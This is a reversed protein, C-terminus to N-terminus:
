KSNFHNSLISISDLARMKPRVQQNWLLCESSLQDKFEFARQLLSTLEEINNSHSILTPNIGLETSKNNSGQILIAPVGAWAAEVIALGFGERISPHLLVVSKRLIEKKIEESGDGYITVYKSMNNETVFSSVERLLPGSGLLHFKGEWGSDRFAKIAQLSLIPQKDKTLRGIQCVDVTAVKEEPSLYQDDDMCIGPLRLSEQTPKMIRLLQKTTSEM